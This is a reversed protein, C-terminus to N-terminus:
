ITEKCFIGCSRLKLFFFVFTRFPMDTKLNLTLDFIVVSMDEMTDEITQSTQLAQHIYDVNVTLEERWFMMFNTTTSLNVSIETTQEISKKLASNNVVSKTPHQTKKSM